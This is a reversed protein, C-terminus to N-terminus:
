MNSILLGEIFDDGVGDEPVDWRAAARDTLYKTLRRARNEVKEEVFGKEIGLSLAVLIGKETPSLFRVDKTRELIDRAAPTDFTKPDDGSIITEGVFMIAGLRGIHMNVFDMKPDGTPAMRTNFIQDLDELKDKESSRKDNAASRVLTFFDKAGRVLQGSLDPSIAKLELFFEKADIKKFKANGKQIADITATFSSRTDTTIEGFEHDM